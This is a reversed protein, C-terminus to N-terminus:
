DNSHSTMKNAINRLKRNQFHRPVKIEVRACFSQAASKDEDKQLHRHKDHDPDGLRNLSQHSRSTM